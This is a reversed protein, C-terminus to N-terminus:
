RVADQPATGNLGSETKHAESVDPGGTLMGILTQPVLLALAVHVFIFGVIAAMCLFHLIRATQFDGFLAALESFQVPKWIALGTLVQLIGVLIIGTYLLKQVGNYKTLDDHGLRFRLADGINSLIESIRIPTLMRRFRGTAVGYVLYALGNLGFIWMAFFHWQLAGQAEGGLTMWEPFHLWGFLVEDNYIKWGSGIMLLMAVANTWHMIRLPLPHLKKASTMNLPEKALRVSGIPAGINRGDQVAPFAQL